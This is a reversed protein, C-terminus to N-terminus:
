IFGYLVAWRSATIERGVGLLTVLWGLMGRRRAADAECLEGELARARVSQTHTHVCVCACARQLSARGSLAARYKILAERMRASQPSPDM